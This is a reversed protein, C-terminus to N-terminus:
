EENMSRFLKAGTLFELSAIEKLYDTKLRYLKTEVSYLKTQSDIVNIFDIQGVQYGSLASNFTQQAQPFEAENILKIREELSSLKATSSGFNQALVQQALAYQQRYMQQLSEAERVKATVKGGYNLPLSIGVMVTFFDTLPTNTKTIEDRQAYQVALNFNPYRDYEALNQQLAAKEEALKFGKLFARNQVALSDLERVTYRNFSLVPLEGTVIKNEGPLLLLANLSAEVSTESSKLEEIKDAINTRELEVKFLNQQSATSVEYKTKVVKSIEDLLKQSENEISIAKRIYSLEFYDQKVDKIIKNKADAIEQQIIDVDKGAVDAVAGLKGPFPISQSLGIVKGTMPEQTFSFTNVPLNALGLTLTPDPLNSNQAIRNEAADSKAHLMKLEPSVWIARSILSDLSQGSIFEPALLLCTLFIINKVRRM